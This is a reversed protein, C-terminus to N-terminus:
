REFVLADPVERLVSEIQESHRGLIVVVVGDPVAERQRLRDELEPLDGNKSFVALVTQTGNSHRLEKTVLYARRVAPETQVLRALAARDIQRDACTGFRDVVSLEGRM